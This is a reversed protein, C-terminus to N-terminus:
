LLSSCRFERAQRAHGAVPRAAGSRGEQRGVPDHLEDDEMWVRGGMFDGLALAHNLHGVMNQIDRHLGMRPNFLVAISTWTGNPFILSEELLPESRCLGSAEGTGSSAWHATSRSRELDWLM